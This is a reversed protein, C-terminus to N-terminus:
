ELGLLGGDAIIREEIVECRRRLTAPDVRANRLHLEGLYHERRLDDVKYGSEVIPYWVARDAGSWRCLEALLGSESQTIPGGVAHVVKGTRNPQVITYLLNGGGSGAAVAGDRSPEVGLWLAMADLLLDRGSLDLVIERTRGGGIRPNCEILSLGNGSAMAEVHFVGRRFDLAALTRELWDGATSAGEWVQEDLCGGEFFVGGMERPSEVRGDAWSHSVFRQCKFGAAGIWQGAATVCGDLEVEIGPIEPEVLFDRALDIGMDDLDPRLQSYNERIYRVTADWGAPCRVRFVDQSGSGTVPKLFLASGIRSGAGLAERLSQFDAVSSRRFDGSGFEDLLVVAAPGCPKLIACPIPSSRAANLCQRAQHKCRCRLYTAGFEDPFGLAERLERYSLTYRDNLNIWAEVPGVAQRILEGRIKPVAVSPDALDPTWIRPARYNRDYDEDLSEQDAETRGKSGRAAKLDCVVWPEFGIARLADLSGGFSPHGLHTVLVRKM